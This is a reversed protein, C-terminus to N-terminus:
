NQKFRNEEHWIEIIENRMEQTLKFWISNLDNGNWIENKSIPQGDPKYCPIGYKIFCDVFKKSYM